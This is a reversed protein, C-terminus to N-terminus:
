GRGVSRPWKLQEPELTVRTIGTIQTETLRTRGPRSIGAQAAWTSLKMRTGYNCPGSWQPDPVTIGLLLMADDANRPDHEFRWTMPRPAPAPNAKALAAERKEIMKLVARVAMRSGKLAARYTQLQLAEDVTLERESGSQTITLTKDFLIDFASVNPRRKKPRGAPNGSQGKQFRGSM